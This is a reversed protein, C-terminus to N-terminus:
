PRWCGGEAASHWRDTRVGARDGGPRGRRPAPPAAADPGSQGHRLDHGTWRRCACARDAGRRWGAIRRRTRRRPIGPVVRLRRQQGERRVGDRRVAHAAARAGGAAGARRVGAPYSVPLREAPCRRGWRARRRVRGRYGRASVGAFYYPPLLLTRTIGLGLMGKTLAVTDAIAPCGTGLAVHVPAVGVRLVAEAAALRETISFSPGEGCSGFLVLGDCGGHLLRQAHRALTAHDITGATDIPTTAAAWLGTIPDPM